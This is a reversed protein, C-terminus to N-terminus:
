HACFVDTSGEVRVSYLFGRREVCDVETLSDPQPMLAKSLLTEGAHGGGKADSRSGGAGIM